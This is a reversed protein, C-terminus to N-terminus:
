TKDHIVKENEEESLDPENPLRSLTGSLSREETSKVFWAFWLWQRVVSVFFSFEPTQKM